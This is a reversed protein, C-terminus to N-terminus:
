ISTEYQLMMDLDESPKVPQVHAQEYSKANKIGIADCISAASPEYPLACISLHSTNSSGKSGTLMVYAGVHLQPSLKFNIANTACANNCLPMVSRM